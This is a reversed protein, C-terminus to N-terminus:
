KIDWLYYWSSMQAAPEGTDLRCIIVISLDPRVDLELTVVALAALESTEPSPAPPPSSASPGPAPSATRTERDSEMRQATLSSM